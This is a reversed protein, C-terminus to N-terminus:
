DRMGVKSKHKRDPHQTRRQKEASDRARMARMAARAACGSSCFKRTIKLALYWKQCDNDRCRGVRLAFRGLFTGFHFLFKELHNPQLDDGGITSQCFYDQLRDGSRFFQRQRRRAQRTSPGPFVKLRLSLPGIEAAKGNNLADLVTRGAQHVAELAELTPVPWYQGEGQLAFRKLLRDAKKGGGHDPLRAIFVFVALELKLSNQKERTLVGLDIIQSFNLAWELRNSQLLGVKSVLTELQSESLWRDEIQKTIDIM